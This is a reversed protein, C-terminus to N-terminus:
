GFTPFTETTQQKHLTKYLLTHLFTASPKGHIPTPPMQSSRAMCIIKSYQTYVLVSLPSFSINKQPTKSIHMSPRRNRVQLNYTVM